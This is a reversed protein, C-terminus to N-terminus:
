FFLFWSFCQKCFYFWFTRGSDVDARCSWMCISQYQVALSKRGIHLFDSVCNTSFWVSFFVNPRWFSKCKRSLNNKYRKKSGSLCAIGPGGADPLYIRQELSFCCFFSWFYWQHNKQNFACIKWFFPLHQNKSTCGRPTRRASRSEQHDSPLADVRQPSVFM